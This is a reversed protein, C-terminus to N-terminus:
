TGAKPFVRVALQTGPLSISVMESCSTFTKTGDGFTANLKMSVGKIIENILQVGGKPGPVFDILIIHFLAELFGTKENSDQLRVNGRQLLVSEHVPIRQINVIEWDAPSVVSFQESHGPIQHFTQLEDGKGIPIHKVSSGHTIFHLVPNKVEEHVVIQCKASFGLFGCHFGQFSSHLWLFPSQIAVLFFAAVACSGVM